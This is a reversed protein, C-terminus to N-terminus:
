TEKLETKKNKIKIIGIESKQAWIPQKQTQPITRFSNQSRSM